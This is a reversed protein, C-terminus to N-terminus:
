SFWHRRMASLFEANIPYGSLSGIVSDIGCRPCLATTGASLELEERTDVPWDVWESIESPGFTELCYFCGCLASAEIEKRHNSSSSHAVVVNPTTSSM